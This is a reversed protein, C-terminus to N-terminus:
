NYDTIGNRIKEATKSGEDMILYNDILQSLKEIDSENELKFGGVNSIRIYGDPYLRM